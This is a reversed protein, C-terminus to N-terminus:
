KKVLEALCEAWLEDVTKGIVEKFDHVEFQRSQLRRNLKDILGPHKSELWLLFRATTRYGDTYSQKPTLDDPLKWGPQKTPGYVHRTYDAIGRIAVHRVAPKRPNDLRKLLAPYCEYFLATLRGVTPAFETDVDGRITLVLPDPLDLESAM